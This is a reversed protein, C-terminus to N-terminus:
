AWFSLTPVGNLVFLDNKACFHLPLMPANAHRSTIISVDYGLRLLHSLLGCACTPVTRVLFALSGFGVVLSVAVIM